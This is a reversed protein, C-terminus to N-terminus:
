YSVCHLGKVKEKTSDNRFDEMLLDHIKKWDTVDKLIQRM